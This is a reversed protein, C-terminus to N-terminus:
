SEEGDIVGALVRGTGPALVTEAHAEVVLDTFREDADAQGFVGEFTMEVQRGMYKKFQTVRWFGPAEGRTITTTTEKGNNIFTDQKRERWSM